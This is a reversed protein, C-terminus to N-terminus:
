PLQWLYLGNRELPDPPTFFGLKKVGGSKLEM